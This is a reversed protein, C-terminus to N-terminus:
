RTSCRPRRSAGACILGGDGGPLQAALAACDIVVRKPVPKPELDPKPSRSPSLNPAPSLHPSTRCRLSSSATPSRSARCPCMEGRSTLSSSLSARCYSCCSTFSTVPHPCLHAPTHPDPAPPSSIFVPVPRHCPPLPRPHPLPLQRLIYADGLSSRTLEIAETGALALVTAVFIPFSFKLLKERRATLQATVMAKAKRARFRTQLMTAHRTEVVLRRTQELVDLSALMSQKAEPHAGGFAVLSPDASPLAGGCLRGTGVGIWRLQPTYCM